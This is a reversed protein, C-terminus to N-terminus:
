HGRKSEKIEALFELYNQYRDASIVNNQVAEKVSCKPEKWHLCQSFKCNAAIDVMEPFYYTLDEPTIDTFEISSFGPTDVVFGGMDLALLQAFRTTHKGRGIKESLEGTQLAFGPQITNLITSKGVGSPGAFVSTRDKLCEELEATGKGQKAATTIVKYGISEYRMIIDQLNVPDALDAKNICIVIDLHAHEALVLFRDVLSLNIDPYKAAFTLVAQDVNAVMPRLLLTQRPLIDEIVGKGDALVSFGVRDGVILSFREKKFRGRLKCEYVLSGSQVYYYSSYARLVIGESM